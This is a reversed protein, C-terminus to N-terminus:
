PFNVTATMIVPVPVGNLLIPEYRWQRAAEVAAADLLPVSRLVRADSVSGDAAITIELIVVGQIGAQRAKEPYVPPVDHIKQPARINGGVRVAGSPAVAVGGVSIESFTGAAGAGYGWNMNMGGMVPGRMNPPMQAAQETAQQEAQDFSSWGGGSGSSGQFSIAGIATPDRQEFDSPGFSQVLQVLGQPTVVGLGTPGPQAANSYEEIVAAGEWRDGLPWDGQVNFYTYTMDVPSDIGDSPPYDILLILFRQAANFITRIVAQRRKVIRVRANDELIIRDGDRAVIDQGQPLPTPNPRGFQASLVSGAIVV